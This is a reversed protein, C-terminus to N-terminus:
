AIVRFGQEKAKVTEPPILLAGQVSGSVLAAYRSPVSGVQVINMERDPQIGLKPMVFMTATHDASGIRSVAFRKGKLDSIQKISAPVVLQYPFREAGGLVIYTGSGKMNATISGVVGGQSIAVEGSMLAAAGVPAGSIYVLEVDLGQKKFFGTDLLVWVNVQSTSISSIAVRLKESQGNAVLAPFAAALLAVWVLFHPFSVRKM